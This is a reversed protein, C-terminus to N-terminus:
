QLLWFSMVLEEKRSNILTSAMHWWFFLFVFLLRSIWTYLVYLVHFSCVRGSLATGFSFGWQLSTKISKLSAASRGRSPWSLNCGKLSHALKHSWSGTRKNLSRLKKFRKMGFIQSEVLKFIREKTDQIAQVDFFVLLPAKYGAKNENNIKRLVPACPKYDRKPM